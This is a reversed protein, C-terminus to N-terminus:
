APNWYQHQGGADLIDIADDSQFESGVIVKRLWKIGTLERCSDFRYQATGFGFHVSAPHLNVAHHEIGPATVHGQIALRDLDRRQLEIDQLLKHAVGPM